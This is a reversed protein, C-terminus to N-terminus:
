FGEACKSTVLMLSLPNILLETQGLIFEQAVKAQPDDLCRTKSLERVSVCSGSVLDLEAVFDHPDLDDFVSDDRM